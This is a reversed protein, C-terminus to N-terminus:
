RGDTGPEGEERQHFVTAALDEDAFVAQDGGLEKARLLGADAVRLIADGDGGVESHTIGFSCTFAPLRSAAVARALAQRLRGIAEISIEVSMNPYVLVFEEGGLRSVVDNGRVNDRLVGAFLQLAKDGIEHGFNDNLKKFKDLDALVMVFPTGRELLTAVESELMRRNPLGTLGDTAAEKRTSELTRLAGLRNGVQISLTVLRDALQGRPPRHDPGTVHLVGVPRTAVTVPVCVASMPGGPRDRLYPCTNISESSDWVAVQGRRLAPCAGTSEVPCAPPPVAEDAAVVHLQTSGREALLLEVPHHQEDIMSLARTIVRHATAEDDAEDLAEFIARSQEGWEARRRLGLVEAALRELAQDVSRGVAALGPGTGVQTRATTDGRAFEHVARGIREAPRDVRVVLRRRAIATAVAAAVVTGLAILLAGSRWTDARDELTAASREVARAFAVLTDDAGRHAAALAALENGLEVPGADSRD